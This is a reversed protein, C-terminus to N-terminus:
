NSKLLHRQYITDVTNTLATCSIHHPWRLLIWYFKVNLIWPTCLHKHKTSNRSSPQLAPSLGSHLFNNQGWKMIKAGLNWVNFWSWNQILLEKELLVCCEVLCRDKHAVSLWHFRLIEKICICDRMWVKLKPVSMWSHALLGRKSIRQSTKALKSIFGWRGTSLFWDTIEGRQCLMIQWSEIEVSDIIGGWKFNSIVSKQISQEKDREPRRLAHYM